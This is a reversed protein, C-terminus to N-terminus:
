EPKTPWDIDQPFGVQEPLDLLDTRYNSWSAQQSETLDSWRLTNGAIPDVETILRHDRESRANTALVENLEEQTPAVYAIVDGRSNMSELLSVNDVTNDEDTPDLTYPIWGYDTHNIECDIRNIDIYRANRYNMLFDKDM